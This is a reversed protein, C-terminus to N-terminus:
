LPTESMEVCTQDEGSLIKEVSAQKLMSMGAAAAHGRILIKV